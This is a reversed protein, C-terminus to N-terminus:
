RSSAPQSGSPEVTRHPTALGLRDPPRTWGAAMNVYLNGESMGYSDATYTFTLANVSGPAVATPDVTMTGAGTESVDTEPSSALSAPTAMDTAAQSVDFVNEGNSAGGPPTVNEYDIECTGSPPLTVGEVEITTADIIPSLGCDSTAYDASFPELAQPNGWGTPLDVEIQGNQIGLSDASYSFVLNTLNGTVASTPAVTMTGAGAETQATVVAPAALQTPSTGSRGAEM